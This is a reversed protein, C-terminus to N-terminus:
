TNRAAVPPLSQAPKQDAEKLAQRLDLLITGSETIEFNETLEFEAPLEHIKFASKKRILGRRVLSRLEEETSSRRQYSMPMAHSINWLHRAEDESVLACLLADHEQARQELVQLSSSLASLNRREEEGFPPATVPKPEAPSVPTPPMSNQLEAFRKELAAQREGVKHSRTLGVFALAAAIAAIIIEIDM